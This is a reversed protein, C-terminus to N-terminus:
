QSCMTLMDLACPWCLWAWSLGAWGMALAASGLGVWPCGLRLGAWVIALGAWCMALRHSACGVGGWPWALTAWTRAM